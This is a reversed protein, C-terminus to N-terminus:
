YLFLTCRLVHLVYKKYKKEESLCACKPGVWINSDESRDRQM